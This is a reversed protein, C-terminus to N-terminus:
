QINTPFGSQEPVDRLAQRYPAWLDKTAQPVDAAQSWDTAALLRDREARAEVLTGLNTNTTTGWTGAQEGPAILEIRLSPSFSSPM